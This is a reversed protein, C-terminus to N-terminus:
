VLDFRSQLESTHEESRKVAVKNTKSDKLPQCDTNSLNGKRKEHYLPLSGDLTGVSDGRISSPCTKLDYHRVDIEKKNTYYETHSRFLTTYPFLHTSSSH